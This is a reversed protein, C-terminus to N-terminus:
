GTEWVRRSNERLFPKLKHKGTGSRKQQLPSGELLGVLYNVEVWDVGRPKVSKINDEGVKRLGFRRICDFGKLINFSVLTVFPAIRLPTTTPTFSRHTQPVASPRCPFSFM